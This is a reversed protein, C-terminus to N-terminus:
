NIRWKRYKSTKSSRLFTTSYSEPYSNRLNRTQTPLQTMTDTWSIKHLALKPNPFADWLPIWKIGLCPMASFSGRKEWQNCIMSSAAQKVTTWWRSAHKTGRTNPRGLQMELNRVSLPPSPSDHERPYRDAGYIPPGGWAPGPLTTLCSCASVEAM